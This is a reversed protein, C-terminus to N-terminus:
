HKPHVYGRVEPNVETRFISVIYLWMCVYMADYNLLTCYVYISRNREMRREAENGM